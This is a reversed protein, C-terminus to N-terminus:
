IEIKNMKKTEEKKRWLCLELLIHEKRIKLMGFLQRALRNSEMRAKLKTNAVLTSNHDVFQGYTVEHEWAYAEQQGKM